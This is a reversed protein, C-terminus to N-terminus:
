QKGGRKSSIIEGLNAGSIKILDGGAPNLEDLSGGDERELYKIVPPGM